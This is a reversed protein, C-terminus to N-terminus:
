GALANDVFVENVAENPQSMGAKLLPFQFLETILKQRILVSSFAFLQLILCFFLFTQEM